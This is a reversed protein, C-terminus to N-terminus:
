TKDGQLQSLVEDVDATPRRCSFNECVYVFVDNEKGTFDKTYPAVASLQEPQEEALYVVEPLFRKHLADVLRQFNENTEEGLVVVEKTKMQTTLLSQLFYCFGSPYRGVDDAFTSFMRAVKEEYEANGTLKALHLLNLAAVSNGSPLAGDYLEKPRYILDEADNGYFYFGGDGEDWFLAFMEEALKDAKKIYGVELTTEYMEIHAWLINAYDDIFGKNKVEGDRFRSMLRKNETLSNEIFTLAEKAIKIYGEDGFVRGAKAFATVMLGNWSTLIKDDKHPHIRKERAEFLQQRAKEMEEPSVNEEDRKILNPINKGEFNGEESIGYRGCFAEGREEGVIDVVEKKDWLYFKGEVGESDADEASYFGGDVDRMDRAVYSLIERAVTRFRKNKTVQYAETYTIALMANDYLMKEFHPVLWKEDVSYRAFGFGIHDYIGGDAMANLTKTVMALANENNTWRGYRLLYTLMHPAPFKPADGFGGYEDDFSQELQEFCQHLVDKSLMGSAQQKEQLSRTIKDGIGVIKEHNDKYQDYLQTIVDVFGPMNFRSDRPFYTGAYFPKQEPTLFVNLPWGGQGTLAQCVKMYISDIDPREERDVKISVFRKNLQKAVEEDEFSEHAM